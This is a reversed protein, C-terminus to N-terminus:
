PYPFRVCFRTEPARELEVRGQLQAALLTVLQMGLTRDHEIDFDARVPVGDNSVAILVETPSGRALEVRLKGARGGPFAHKLANTVLENVILGCPIALNIPLRVQEAEVTLAIRERDLATAEMLTPLFRGLFANFDVLAFDRSQYLTQHILWMSRIRNQSDRLAAQVEADDVRRVQLNLLSDIIQLNNKVRHHIEGLLLEKERLAAEIREERQKRETIDVITSLVLPRAADGIPHLGIEVPVETGDKRRAHLDRGAGMPRASPEALYRRRFDVHVDRLREPVLMEIPQGLMESPEYGLMRQLHPNTVAIRGRADVIVMGITTANFARGIFETSVSLAVDASM